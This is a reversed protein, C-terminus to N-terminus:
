GGLSKLRRVKYNRSSYWQVNMVMCHVTNTGPEIGGNEIIMIKTKEANVYYLFLVVHNNGKCILDGTRMNAYGKITKYASSRAIDSTRDDSHSSDTGWIAADVFCSCDNGCYKKNKLNNQNLIYYGKGSDYFRNEDLLKEANYERNSGSGSIYPVGYYVRGKKFDKVGGESNAAKWYKQKKLTMWPFAYDKFANNIIRKRRSADSSTITGNAKLTDIQSIASARLADIKKLNGTIGSTGTTRAPITLVLNDAEVTLTFSLVIATNTRSTATITAKGPNVAYLVGDDDVRAVSSDSSDWEFDVEANEPSVTWKLQRKKGAKMTKPANTLEASKPIVADTVVVKLYAHHGNHTTVRITASGEAVATVLGKTSVRAVSKNNTAYKFGTSTGSPIIPKLKLTDGVNLTASTQALKVSGPAKLVNVTLSFTKGNYTKVTITTSGKKVATILGGASVKAIAKNKTSYTFTSARGGVDPKLQVTQNVGMNLTHSPLSVKSPAATVEVTCQFAIDDGDKAMLVTKGKAVGKLVGSKCTAVKKNKVTFTLGDTDDDDLMDKLKLQMGVGLRVTGDKFENSTLGAAADPQGDESAWDADGSDQADADEASQTRDAHFGDDEPTLIADDLELGLDDLSQIEDLELEPLLETASPDLQIDNAEVIAIEDAPQEPETFGVGPLMTVALCLALLIAIKKVTFM